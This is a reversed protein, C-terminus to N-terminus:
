LGLGVRRSPVPPADRAAQVREPQRLLADYLTGISWTRARKDEFGFLTVCRDWCQQWVYSPDLDVTSDPTRGQLIEMVAKMKRRKVLERNIDQHPLTTSQAFDKSSIDRLANRPDHWKNWCLEASIGVPFRFDIAAASAAAATAAAATYVPRHNVMTTYFLGRQM